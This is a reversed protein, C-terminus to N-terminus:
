QIGIEIQGKENVLDNVANSLFFYAAGIDIVCEKEGWLFLWDGALAEWTGNRNQGGM